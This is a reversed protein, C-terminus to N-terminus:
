DFKNFKGSLISRLALFKTKLLFDEIRASLNKYEWTAREINKTCKRMILEIFKQM